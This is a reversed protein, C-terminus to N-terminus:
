EEFDADITKSVASGAKKFKAIRTQMKGDYDSVTVSVIFETQEAIARKIEAGVSKGEDCGLASTFNNFISDCSATRKKSVLREVEGDENTYCAIGSLGEFEGSAIQEESLEDERVHGEGNLRHMLSGLGDVSVVTIGFQPTPVDWEFNDSKDGGDNDEFSSMDKASALRVRNEGEPLLTVAPKVKRSGFFSKKTM